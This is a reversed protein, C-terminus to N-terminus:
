YRPISTDVEASWADIGGELTFVEGFGHEKLLTAARHSRKGTHCYCVIQKARPLEHLRDELEALPLLFSGPIRALDHEPRNRVDILEIPVDRELALKLERVTMVSPSSTADMEASSLGAATCVADDAVPKRARGDASCTPCNPARAIAFETFRARLADFVLLRGVLSDGKGLVIKIAENAQLAGVIGPLVGLVGGEACSPALGAPPPAPFLCRYCPGRDPWFVSLQAEFQFISASVNPKALNVCADNILYRTPFNDTADIVVEYREVIGFVNGASLRANHAEVRVLPNQERIRREAVELKPRGVDSTNFLIQRQLNTPDVTDFEVLGLTGVGAAALYLLVPSGLGGAGVVLVRAAKLAQQGSPGLEPLIIQRSYRHIEAPTLGHTSGPAVQPSPTRM